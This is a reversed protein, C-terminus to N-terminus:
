GDAWKVFLYVYYGAVITPIITYAVIHGFDGRIRNRSVRSFVKEGFNLNIRGFISILSFGVFFVLLLVRLWNPM